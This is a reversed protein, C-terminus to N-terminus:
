NKESVIRRRKVGEAYSIEISADSIHTYLKTKLIKHDKTIFAAGEGTNLQACIAYYIYRPTIKYVLGVIAMGENTRYLMDGLRLNYVNKM